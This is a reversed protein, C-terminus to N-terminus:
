TAALRTEVNKVWDAAALVLQETTRFQLFHLYKQSNQTKSNLTVTM